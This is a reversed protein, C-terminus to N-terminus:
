SKNLCRIDFNTEAVTGTKSEVFVSVHFNGNADYLIELNTIKYDGNGYAGSALMLKEKALLQGQESISITTNKGYNMSTYRQLVGGDEVVDRAFRLENSLVNSITSLLLETEAESTMENYSDQALFIGTSLIMSLLSLIAAAALMEVVTLGKKRRLKHFLKCKIKNKLFEM